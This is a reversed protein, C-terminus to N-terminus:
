FQFYIFEQHTGSFLVILISISLYFCIRLHKPWTLGLNSIGFKGDKGLWEIVIFATILSTTIIALKTLKFNTVELVNFELIQSLYEGVVELNPARFFLWSFSILFFIFLRSILIPPTTRIKIKLSIEIILYIANLIGWIIFTWSAGHWLGSIGFVILLNFIQKSKGLKNGGLPFYIYDRFWTSLSIHWNRWFESISKSFYPYNFNQKLDFGLLRACGIAIDSYGSFDGYIQFSFLILGLILIPTNYSQHNNFIDNVIIACNNAIVIKKFLGWLIQRTGDVAKQYNFIRKKQFQPLLHSAREIPGAVLQPFFSVFACFDIIHNTPKIKEKYVDITYSLTQFTYFSIGVPLIITLSSINLPNGLLTFAKDFNEIFFNFYKFFGLIGLNFSLSIFLLLRKYDKSKSKYIKKSITYDLISSFAILGLFRWDWFAYFIYSILVIFLNQIKLGYNNILWYIIFVVPFFFAFDISDFLM